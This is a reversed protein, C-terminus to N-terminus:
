TNDILMTPLVRKGAEFGCNIFECFYILEVGYRAFMRRLHCPHVPLYGQQRFEEIRCIMEVSKLLQLHRPTAEAVAVFFADSPGDRESRVEVTLVELSCPLVEEIPVHRTHTLLSSLPLDLHTLSGFSQLCFPELYHAGGTSTDKCGFLENIRLHTISDKHAKLTEFLRAYYKASTERYYHEFHFQKLTRCSRIMLTIWAVPLVCQELTLEKIASSHQQCRWRADGIDPTLEESSEEVLDLAASRITLSGLSPLQFLLSLDYLVYDRDPEIAISLTRLRDFPVMARLKGNYTQSNLLRMFHDGGTTIDLQQLNSCLCVVSMAFLAPTVTSPQSPLQNHVAELLAQDVTFVNWYNPCQKQPNQGHEHGKYHQVHQARAPISSITRAFLKLHKACCDQFGRYLLPTVIDQFQRCVRSLIAFTQCRENSEISVSEFIQILLEAPLATAFTSNPRM